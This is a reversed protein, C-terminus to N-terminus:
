EHLQHPFPQPRVTEGGQPGSVYGRARLTEEGPLGSPATDDLVARNHGLDREAQRMLQDLAKKSLGGRGNNRLKPERDYSM